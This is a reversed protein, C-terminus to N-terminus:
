DIFVALSKMNVIQEQESGNALELMDGLIVVWFDDGGHHGTVDGDDSETEGCLIFGGDSTKRNSRWKM